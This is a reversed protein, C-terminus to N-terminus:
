QNQKSNEQDENTEGIIHLKIDEINFNKIKKKKLYNFILDNLEDDYYDYISGTKQDYLHHHNEIVPDYRMIDNETKVKTILGKGVLAELTKYVTGLSIAPNKESVYEKIMEATPHDDINLLAEYVAIRQPTVKLGSEALKDRIKKVQLM